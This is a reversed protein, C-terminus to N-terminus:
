KNIQVHCLTVRHPFYASELCSICYLYIFWKVHCTLAAINAVIDVPKPPSCPGKVFTDGIALGFALESYFEAVITHYRSKSIALPMNM